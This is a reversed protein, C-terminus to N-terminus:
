KGDLIAQLSRDGRHVTDYHRRANVKMARLTATDCVRNLAAGIDSRLNDDDVDTTPDYSYGSTRNVLVPVGLSLARVYVHSLQGRTQVRMCAIASCSAIEADFDSEHEPNSHIFRDSLGAEAFRRTIGYFLPEDIIRGVLVFFVRRADPGQRHNSIAYDIVADSLERLKKLDDLILGFHGIVIDDKRIHRVRRLHQAARLVAPHRRDDIGLPAYVLASEMDRLDNIVSGPVIVERKHMQEMVSPPLHHVYKLGAGSLWDSSIPSKSRAAGTRRNFQPNFALYRALRARDGEQLMSEQEVLLDEVKETQGYMALFGDFYRREHILVIDGPKSDRRLLLLGPFLATSFAFNFLGAVHPFRRCFQEHDHFTFARVNPLQALQEQRGESFFFAVNAKTSRVYAVSYDAVGCSQGPVSSFIKATLERFWGQYADVASQIAAGLANGSNSWHDRFRRKLAEYGAQDPTHSWWKEFSAADLSEGYPLLLVAAEDDILDSLIERNIPTDLVLVKRNLFVAELLPIGFGEEISLHSVVRAKRQVNFKEDDSISATVKIKRHVQGGAALIDHQDQKPVNIRIEIGCEASLMEFLALSGTPNKSKHSGLLAFLYSGKSDNAPGDLYRPELAPMIVTSRSQPFALLKSADERVSQSICVLADAHAVRALGNFYSRRVIDNSLYFDPHKLPIYDYCVTLVPCTFLDLRAPGLFPTADVYLEYNEIELLSTLYATFDHLTEAWLADTEISEEPDFNAFRVDYSAIFPDDQALYCNRFLLLHVDHGTSRFLEMVHTVYRGMGRDFASSSFVRGDILVKM